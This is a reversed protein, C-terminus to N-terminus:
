RLALLREELTAEHDEVRFEVDEPLAEKRDRWTRDRQTITHGYVKEIMGTSRHGSGM